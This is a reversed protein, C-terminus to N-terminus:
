LCHTGKDIVCLPLINDICSRLQKGRLCCYSLLWTLNYFSSIVCMCKALLQNHLIYLLIVWLLGLHGVGLYGLADAISHAFAVYSLRVVSCCLSTSWQCSWAAVYPHVVCTQSRRFISFIFYAYEIIGNRYLTKLLCVLLQYPCKATNTIIMKENWTTTVSFVQGGTPVHVMHGMQIHRTGCYFYWLVINHLFAFINLVLCFM